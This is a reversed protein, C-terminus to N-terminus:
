SSLKQGFLCNSGRCVAGWSRTSPPQGEAGPGRGVECPHSGGALSPPGPHRWRQPACSGGPGRYSASEPGAPRTPGLPQTGLLGPRHWPQQGLVLRQTALAQRHGRQGRVRLDQSPQTNADGLGGPSGPTCGHQPGERPAHVGEGRGEFINGAKFDGVGGGPGPDCVRNM